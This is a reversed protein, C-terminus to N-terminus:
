KERVRIKMNTKKGIGGVTMDYVLSIEAGNDTLSSRIKRTFIEADFSYPPVKYIATTAQGECFEFDCEVGGRRAVKVYNEAVTIRTSVKTGEIMETYSISIVDSDYRLTGVAESENKESSEALGTESLNEILSQTYITVEKLM